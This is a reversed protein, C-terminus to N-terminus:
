DLEFAVRASSLVRKQLHIWSEPHREFAGDLGAEVKWVEEPLERVSLRDPIDVELHPDAAMEQPTLDDVQQADQLVNLEATHDTAEESTM